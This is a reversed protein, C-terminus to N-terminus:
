ILSIIIYVLLDVICRNDINLLHMDFLWSSQCLIPLLVERTRRVVRCEAAMCFFLIKSAIIPPLYQGSRNHLPLPLPTEWSKLFDGTFNPSKIKCCSGSHVALLLICSLLKNYCRTLKNEDKLSPHAPPVHARKFKNLLDSWNYELPATM